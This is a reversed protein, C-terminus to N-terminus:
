FVKSVDRLNFTYHFKSPIPKMENTIDQYIDITGVVLGQTAMRVAEPFANVEFFGKLMSEFIKQLVEWTKFVEGDPLVILKVKQGIGELTKVVKDAYLPAVTENTVVATFTGKIHKKYLDAQDLLGSGIHIPYSREGLDLQLTNM